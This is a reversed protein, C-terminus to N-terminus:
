WALGLTGKRGGEGPQPDAPADPQTPSDSEPSEAVPELLAEAAGAPKASGADRAALSWRGDELVYKGGRRGGRLENVVSSLKVWRDADTTASGLIETPTLGPREGLAREVLRPVSGRPARKRGAARRKPAANKRRPSRTERAPSGSRAGLLELVQNRTDIRGREFARAEIDAVLASLEQSKSMSGKAM